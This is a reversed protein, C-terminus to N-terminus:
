GEDEDSCEHCEACFVDSDRGCVLCKRNLTAKQCTPCWQRITTNIKSMGVMRTAPTGVGGM